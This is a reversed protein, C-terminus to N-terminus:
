NPVCPDSRPSLAEAQPINVSASAARGKMARAKVDRRIMESVAPGGRWTNRTM